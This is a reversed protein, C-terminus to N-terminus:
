SLEVSGCVITIVFFFLPLLFAPAALPGDGDVSSIDDANTAAASRRADGGGVGGEGAATARENAAVGGEPPNAPTQKFTPAAPARPNTPTTSPPVGDASDASGGGFASGTQSTQPLGAALEHEPQPEM